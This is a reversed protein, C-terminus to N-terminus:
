LADIEPQVHKAYCDPCVGHSFEAKSRSAIYQEVSHIYEDGERIRKCYACIPLLGQLEDVRALAEELEKVRSALQGQLELVRRGCALRARLEDAHFPKNVYDDVGACLGEVIEDQESKATLLLIYYSAGHDLLRLERAVDPGSRGPMMWDLVLLRPSEEHRALEFAEDGTSAVDLEYGWKPLLRELLRRSVPDDEAILARM